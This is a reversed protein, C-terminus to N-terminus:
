PLAAEASDIFALVGVIFVFIGLTWRGSAFDLPLAALDSPTAITFM